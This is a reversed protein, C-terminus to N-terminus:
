LRWWRPIIHVNSLTNDFTVKNPGPALEPLDSGLSVWQNLSVYQDGNVAYVEGNDCDVFIHDYSASWSPYTSYGNCYLFLQSKVTVISLNNNGSTKTVTMTATVTDDGDYALVLSLTFVYQSSNYAVYLKVSCTKSSPTGYTIVYDSDLGGSSAFRLKGNTFSVATGTFGVVTDKAVQTVSPVNLEINTNFFQPIGDSTLHIQDGASFKYKEFSLTTVAPNGDYVGASIYDMTVEGMPDSTLNVTYGNFSINGYGELSILPSSPYLEPNQLVDGSDLPIPLDGDVLWRQPKCNFTLEFEGHRNYSAPSVELGSVYAGMRFEEPHYTDSLRQYGAQSLIANRFASLKESFGAQDAGFVGARYVVEINNWHGQDIIVSGNRGPVDVVEVAREPANYVGEGSLYIGYESSDVGGFILSGWNMAM